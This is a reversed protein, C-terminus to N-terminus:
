QFIKANRIMPLWDKWRSAKKAVADQIRKFYVVDRKQLRQGERPGCPIRIDQNSVSRAPNNNPGGSLEDLLKLLYDREAELGAYHLSWVQKDDKLLAIETELGECHRKWKQISVARQDAKAKNYGAAFEMM